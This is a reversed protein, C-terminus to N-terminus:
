PEVFVYVTGHTELAPAVFALAEGYTLAAPAYVLLVAPPPSKGASRREQAEAELRARVAAPEAVAERRAVTLTPTPQEDTWREERLVLEAAPAGARRRLHLEWPQSPRGQPTRWAEDPVFARYYLQGAAPPEIKVVGLAELMALLRCAQRAEALPLEPGFSLALAPAAGEKKAAALRAVAAALDTPAGAEAAGGERLRCVLGTSGAPRGLALEFRKAPALGGAEGPTLVVTLLTGGALVGEASVVQRGYVESQNVQRPVDLVTLPDNFIAAVSRPDYVDAAYVSDTQGDSPPLRRSGAFVFGEEPLTKGTETDLILREIPFPKGDPPQVTVRVRDGAPWFRLAGPEVPAGPRLGIFELARHVDSPRALSWLLAEYGHSSGQDILLFEVTEEARLGTAEAALEVRRARRDALLGPLVLVDPNHRHERRRAEYQAQARPGGTPRPGFSQGEDQGGVSWATGLAALLGAAWCRRRM